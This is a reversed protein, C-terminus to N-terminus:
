FRLRFLQYIRHMIEMQEVQYTSPNMKVVVHLLHFYHMSYWSYTWPELEHTPSDCRGMCGHQAQARPEGRKERAQFRNEEAALPVEAVDMKGGKKAEASSIAKRERERRVNRLAVLFCLYPYLKSLPFLLIASSGLRGLSATGSCRPLSSFGQLSRNMGLEIKLSRIMKDTLNTAATKRWYFPFLLLLLRQRIWYSLSPFLFFDGIASM